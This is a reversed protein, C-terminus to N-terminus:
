TKPIELISGVLLETSSLKNHTYIRQWLESNKYFTYAIKALTDGQRVRYRALPLTKSIAELQRQLRSLLIELSPTTRVASASTLSSTTSLYSGVNASSKLVTPRSPKHLGQRLNFNIVDAYKRREAASFSMSIDSISVGLLGIRRKFRAIDGRLGKILSLAKGIHDTTKEALALTGDVFKTVTAIKGAISSMANSFESFIGSPVPLDLLSDTNFDTAAVAMQLNTDIPLEQLNNAFFNQTPKFKSIVSFVIKWEIFGITKMMFNTEEIYGYREWEGLRMYILNGRMRLADFYEQLQYSIGYIDPNQLDSASKVKNRKDSWKGELTVNEERPGLIQVAPELNGPYYEKTIRQSGGWTFPQKPMRTGKLFITSGGTGDRFTALDTIETVQLGDPFDEGQYGINLPSRFPALFDSLTDAAIKKIDGFSGLM